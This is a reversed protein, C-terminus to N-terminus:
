MKAQLMTFAFIQRLIQPIKATDVINFVRGSPLESELRQATTGTSGIFLIFVEVRPDMRILKKLELPGIGYQDFNADSLLM